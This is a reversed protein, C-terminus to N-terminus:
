DIYEIKYVEFEIVKFHVDSNNLRNSPFKFTGNRGCYYNSESNLCNNMIHISSGTGFDIIASFSGTGYFSYNKYQGNPDVDYKEEAKVSFLFSDPDYFNEKVYLPKKFFGGIIKNNNTKIITLTNTMGNCKSNFADITDGNITASYIMNAKIKQIKNKCLCYKLFNKSKIDLIIKSELFLDEIDLLSIKEKLKLNEKDKDSTISKLSYIEKKYNEISNNREDNIKAKESIIIDKEKLQQEYKQILHNKEKIQIEYNKIKNKPSEINNLNNEKNFIMNHISNINIANYYNNDYKVYTNYIIEIIENYNYLKEIREEFKYSDIKFKINQELNEIKKNYIYNDINNIKKFKNRIINNNKDYKLKIKKIQKEYEEKLKKIEKKFNNNNINIEENENKNNLKQKENLKIKIENINKNMLDYLKKETKNKSLNLNKLKIKNKKILEFIENLSDSNQTLEILIIKYHYSHKGLKLCEKCLHMNCDFCYSLYEEGHEECIKDNLKINTYKKMKNLYDKIEMKINHKNNCKFEINNENFSIIEITSSCESCNYLMKNSELRPAENMDKIEKITEKKVKICDM